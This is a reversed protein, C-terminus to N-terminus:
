TLPNVTRVGAREELLPLFAGLTKFYSRSLIPPPAFPGSLIVAYMHEEPSLVITPSSALVL